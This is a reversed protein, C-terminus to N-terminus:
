SEQPWPALWSRRFERKESWLQFQSIIVEAIQEPSAHTTDIILDYHNMDSCDVSYKAKYRLNESGKRQLIKNKADEHGCYTEVSGREAAMIRDAAIDADVALYVKFSHPVFHWAMRSDLILNEENKGIATLATDIEEDIEPHTEMHKNFELTSMGYKEALGRQIAGTSYVRFGLQETLIRCVTSKGSGLDGTISIKLGRQMTSM